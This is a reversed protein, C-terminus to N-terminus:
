DINLYYLVTFGFQVKVKNRKSTAFQYSKSGKSSILENDEITEFLFTKRPWLMSSFDRGLEAVTERVDSKGM